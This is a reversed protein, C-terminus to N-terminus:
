KKIRDLIKIALQKQKSSVPLKHMVRYQLETLFTGEWASFSDYNLLIADNLKIFFDHSTM